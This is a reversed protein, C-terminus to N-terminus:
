ATAARNRLYARFLERTALPKVGLLEKLMVRTLQKAERYQHEDTLKNAALALLTSGSIRVHGPKDCLKGGPGADPDYCYPLVPNIPEGTETDHDLVLGYGLADLLRKEFVRLTNQENIRGHLEVLARHYADFLEPHPEHRHLLRMLLENMYFAAILESGVLNLNMGEAEIATLNGMEGRTSWGLKLKQNCQMLARNNKKGRKAGRAVLVLKGHDRSFIDLIISTERYPRQHLIYCPNLQVRM